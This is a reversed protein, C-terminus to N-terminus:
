VPIGESPYMWQYKDSIEGNQIGRYMALLQRFGEFQSDNRYVEVGLDVQEDDDEWLTSIDRSVTSIPETKPFERHIEDVPTIVVATGCAAIEDFKHEMVESWRIKRREVNWGFHHVALEALTRNTNSLLISKSKPTVFTRKGQEDPKTLAVFNSTAFEEVFENKKPDLFL